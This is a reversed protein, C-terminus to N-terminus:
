EWQIGTLDWKFKETYQTFSRFNWRIRILFRLSLLVPLWFKNSLHKEVWYWAFALSYYQNNCLICCVITTVRIIQNIINNIQSAITQTTRVSATKSIHCELSNCERSVCHLCSTAEKTTENGAAKTCGPKKIKSKTNLIM